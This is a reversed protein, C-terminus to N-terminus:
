YWGKRILTLNCTFLQDIFDECTSIQLLLKLITNIRFRLTLPFVTYQVCSKDSSRNFKLTPIPLPRNNTLLPSIKCPCKDVRFPVYTKLFKPRFNFTSYKERLTNETRPINLVLSFFFVRSIRGNEKREFPKYQRNIKTDQVNYFIFGVSRRFTCLLTLFLICQLELDNGRFVIGPNYNTQNLFIFHFQTLPLSM